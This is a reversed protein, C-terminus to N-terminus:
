SKFLGKQIAMHQTLLLRMPVRKLSHLLVNSLIPQLVLQLVATGGGPAAAASLLADELQFATRQTAVDRRGEGAPHVEV